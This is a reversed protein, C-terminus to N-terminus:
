RRRRQHDEWSSGREAHIRVRQREGMGHLNQLLTRKSPKIKQM